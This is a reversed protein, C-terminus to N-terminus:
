WEPRDTEAVLYIDQITGLKKGARDFMTQGEWDLATSPPPTM